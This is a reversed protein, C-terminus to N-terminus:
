IKDRIIAYLPKCCYLFSMKATIALNLILFINSGSTVGFRSVTVALNYALLSNTLLRM